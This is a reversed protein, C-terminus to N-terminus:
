NPSQCSGSGLRFRNKAIVKYGWDELQKFGHLRYLLSLTRYPANRIGPLREMVDNIAGAGRSVEVVMANNASVLIASDLCEEIGIGAQQHIETANQCPTFTVSSGAGRRTAWDCWKQCFGCDRDYLLNSHSRSDLGRGFVVRMADKAIWLLIIGSTAVGIFFFVIFNDKAFLINQWETLFLISPTLDFDLKNPVFPAVALILVLSTMTYLVVRFWVPRACWGKMPSSFEKDCPLLLSLNKHRDRFILIATPIFLFIAAIIPSSFYVGSTVGIMGHFALVSALAFLCLRRSLLAIFFGTEFLVSAYAALEVLFPHGLFWHLADIVQTPPGVNAREWLVLRYELFRAFAGESLFYGKAIKHIGSNVYLTVLVATCMWIPWQPWCTPNGKRPKKRYRHWISDVSVRHGWDSFMLVLLFLLYVETNHRIKGFSMYLCILVVNSTFCLPGTARTWVGFLLLITFSTSLLALLQFYGETPQASFVRVVSIPHWLEHPLQIYGSLGIKSGLMALWGICWFIRMLGLIRLMGVDSPLEECKTHASKIFGGFMAGVVLGVLPSVINNAILWGIVAGASAGILVGRGSIALPNSCNM